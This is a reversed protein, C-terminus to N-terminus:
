RWAMYCFTADDENEFQVGSAIVLTGGVCNAAIWEKITQQPATRGFPANYRRGVFEGTFTVFWDGSGTRVVKEARISRIPPDPQPKKMAMM